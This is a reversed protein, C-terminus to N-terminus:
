RWKMSYCSLLGINIFYVFYYMPAQLYSNIKEHGFRYRMRESHESMQYRNSCEFIFEMDGRAM